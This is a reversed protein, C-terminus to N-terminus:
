SSRIGDERRGEFLSVIKGAEERRAMRCAAEAVRRAGGSGRLIRRLGLLTESIHAYREPDELMSVAEGAIREPTARHQILEPVVHRGALVNPMAIWPIDVLMRGLLYTIRSTKYFVVAPTGSIAAQLTVTGSSALVLSAEPLGAVGDDTIEVIPRLEAPIRLAERSILPARGLRFRARPYRRALISVADLLPPLLRGVEQDRSGPFLLVTFEGGPAPARKPAAPAPIEDLMPHGVFLVPIGEREYIEEEFPLIVTMLDVSGRMKRVRGRGWAWVQPSIFYLVPVGVRHAYAALRLNMGPYDVPMFLDIGGGALMARLERELRLIRPLGAVVEAFGMFAYRDIAYRVEAGARELAGGGMAIVRAGPDLAMLERVVISAHHDGSTEGCTLLITSM